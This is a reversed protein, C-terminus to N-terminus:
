ELLSPGQKREKPVKLYGQERAMGDQRLAHVSAISSAHFLHEGGFEFQM